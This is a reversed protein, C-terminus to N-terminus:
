FVKKEETKVYYEMEKSDFGIAGKIETGTLNDKITFNDLKEFMLQSLLHANIMEKSTIIEIKDKVSYYIFYAIQSKKM